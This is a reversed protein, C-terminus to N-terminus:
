NRWDGGGGGGVVVVVVVVHKTYLLLVHHRSEVRISFKNVDHSTRKQSFMFIHPVGDSPDL